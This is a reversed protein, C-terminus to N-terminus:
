GYYCRVGHKNIDTSEYFSNILFFDNLNIVYNNLETRKSAMNTKEM